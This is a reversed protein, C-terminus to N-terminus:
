VRAAVGDALAKDICKYVTSRGVGVRRMVETISRNEAYALLIKAREAERVSATRSRALGRADGRGGGDIGTGGSEDEGVHSCRLVITM